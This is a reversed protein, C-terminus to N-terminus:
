RNSEGELFVTSGDESTVSARRIRTDAIRFMYAHQVTNTPQLSGVVESGGRGYVRLVLRQNGDSFLGSVILAINGSERDVVLTGRAGARGERRHLPFLAARPAHVVALITGAEEKKAVDGGARTTLAIISDQLIRLEGHQRDVTGLLSFVYSSFAAIMVLTVLIVGAWLGTRGEQARPSTDRLDSGSSNTRMESTTMVFPM